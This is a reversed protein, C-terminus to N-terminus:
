IDILEIQNVNTFTNDIYKQNYSLIYGISAKAIRPSTKYFHNSINFHNWKPNVDLSMLMNSLRISWKLLLEIVGKNESLYTGGGLENFEEENFTHAVMNNRTNLIRKIAENNHKDLLDFIVKMEHYNDKVLQNYNLLENSYDDIHKHINKISATDRKSTALLRGFTSIQNSKISDIILQIGYRYSGNINELNTYFAPYKKSNFEEIIQQYTTLLLVDNVAIEFKKNLKDSASM